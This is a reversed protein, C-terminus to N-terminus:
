NMIDARTGTCLRIKVGMELHLQQSSDFVHAEM